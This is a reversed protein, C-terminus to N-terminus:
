QPGTMFTGFLAFDNITIADDGDFDGLSCPPTLGTEGFCQQFVAFDVLDVDGDAEFDGTASPPVSLSFADVTVPRSLAGEPIPYAGAQFSMYVGGPGPSEHTGILQIGDTRSGYTGGFIGLVYDGRTEILLRQWGTLVPDTGIDIMGIVTAYAYLPQGEDNGNNEDLLYLQQSSSTRRLMWCLGTSGNYYDFNHVGDTSGRVGIKTEETLSETYSPAIYIYTELTFNEKALQGMYVANGGGEEDWAIMALDGEPSPPIAVPNIPAGEFGATDVVTPDVAVLPKYSFVWNPIATFPSYSDADESYPTLDPQNNSYGPTGPQIGWDRGNEDTDLGDLFRSQSTLPSEANVHNGWIGVGIQTYIEEPILTYAKNMEWAVADLLIDAPSRLAIYNEGNDMRLVDDVLDVTAGPLLSVNTMGVTWYGHAAMMTGPPIVVEYYVGPPTQGAVYDGVQIVYDGINVPADNRNYLEIFGYDDEGPDDYNFENVVVYNAVLVTNSFPGEVGGITQTARVATNPQLPPVTVQVTEQGAPDMSYGVEGVYATVLQALPHVGSVTVLTDDVDLPGLVMPAPVLVEVGDSFAGEVGGITQTAVITDGDSLPLTTVAVPDTTPTGVGLLEVEGELLIRYVAVQTALGQEVDSVNVITQGPVLASEVTPAPVGVVVGVSYCSEIGGVTQTATVVDGNNLEAVTVSTTGTFPGSVSGEESGNAYVTVLTAFEDIDSVDVVTDDPFLPEDVTPSDVPNPDGWPPQTDGFTVSVDDYMMAPGNNSYGLGIIVYRFADNNVRPVGGPWLPLGTDPDIPNAPQDDIYFNVFDSLIEIKMTHWVAPTRDIGTLAYDYGFYDGTYGDIVDEDEVALTKITTTTYQTAYDGGLGNTFAFGLSGEARNLSPTVEFRARANTNNIDHKFRYQVILPETDSGNVFGLPIYLKSVVPGPAYDSIVYNHCTSASGMTLRIRRDNEPDTPTWITELDDQTVYGDFSDALATGEAYVVIPASLDSVLGNATQTATLVDGANLDLTSFTAIGGVPTVSGQSDEGIFLEASTADEICEVQVQTQTEVVPAIITPPPTPDPVTAEFQLEDIAFDILVAEDAVVNRIVVHELTGRDFPADMIGNGTFGAIGGGMPTGDVTVVGTSLDWELTYAQSSTSLTIAPLPIRDLGDPGGLHYGFRDEDDGDPTTDIDGNVGPSVVPTGPPLGNGIIDYGVPYEQVDDGTAATDVLGDAGAIIANVTTDVGVWEIPGLVGGDALQPVGDAGTERIAICLGVEGDFIESRNTLKFRVKGRTDLTPNPREPGNFTTLRLWGDPDAPDIWNFFVQEAAAGETQLGNARFAANMNYAGTANAEIYASTTGSFQPIQFMEKSTAPDDIPPGNFGVLESPFQAWTATPGLLMVVALVGTLRILKAM